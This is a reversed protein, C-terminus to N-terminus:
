PKLGYFCNECSVYWWINGFFTRSIEVDCLSLSKFNGAPNEYITIHHWFNVFIFLPRDLEFDKPVKKIKRLNWKM